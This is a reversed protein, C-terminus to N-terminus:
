LAVPIEQHHLIAIHTIEVGHLAFEGVLDEGELLREVDEVLHEAANLDDVAVLDDM